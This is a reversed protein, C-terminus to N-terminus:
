NKEILLGSNAPQIPFMQRVHHVVVAAKEGAPRLDQMDVRYSFERGNTEFAAYRYRNMYEGKQNKQTGTGHDLLDITNLRM